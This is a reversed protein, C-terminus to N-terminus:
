SRSNGFSGDKDLLAVLVKYVVDHGAWELSHQKLWDSNFSSITVWGFETKNLLEDFKNFEEFGM